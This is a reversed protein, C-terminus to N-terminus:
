NGRRAIWNTGDCVLEVWKGATGALIATGAAGGALPIVNASSSIIPSTGQCIFQLTRHRNKTVDPLPITVNGGSTRNSLIGTDDSAITPASGNSTRPMDNFGPSAHLESLVEGNFTPVNARLPNGSTDEIFFDPDDVDVNHANVRAGQYLHIARIGAGTLDTAEANVVAGGIARIAIAGANSFNSLWANVVAGNDAELGHAAAGSANVLEISCLSRHVSIAINGSNRASAHNFYGTSARSCFIAQDSVKACNDFNCTPFSVRSSIRAEIGNRNAGTFICQNGFAHSGIVQLNKGYSNIVGSGEQFGMECGVGLAVGLSVSTDYNLDLVIDWVPMRANIGLVAVGGTTAKTVDYDYQSPDDLLPVFDAGGVTGLRVVQQVTGGSVYPSVGAFVSANFPTGDEYAISFTNATLVTVTYVRNAIGVGLDGDDSSQTASSGIGVVNAIACKQGSSLGHGNCTIVAPSATSIGSIAKKPSTIKFHSYDGDVLKVGATLLHGAVININIHIGQQHVRPSLADIAAQITPYDTPVNVTLNATQALAYPPTIWQTNFNTGNVKQLLQGATGGVAVGSGSMLSNLWQLETGVFGHAVAIEYASRGPIGLDEDWVPGPVLNGAGDWVPLAGDVGATVLGGTLGLRVKLARGLERQVEQAILILRDLDADLAQSKYIGGRVVSTVRELLASGVILLQDGTPGPAFLTLTGGAPQGEGTLNYDEAEELAVPVGNAHVLFASVDANAQFPFPVTFVTQGPAITSLRFRPDEAIPFVESMPLLTGGM